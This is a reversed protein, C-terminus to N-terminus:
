PNGHPYEKGGPHDRKSSLEVQQHEAALVYRLAGLAQEIRQPPTQPYKARLIQRLDYNLITSRHGALALVYDEDVDFLTALKRCTPPSPTGGYARRQYLTSVSLGARLAVQRLTMDHHEARQQALWDWFPHSDPKTESM